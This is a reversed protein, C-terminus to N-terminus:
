DSLGRAKLYEDIKVAKVGVMTLPLKSGPHKEPPTFSWIKKGNLTAQIYRGGASKNTTSYVFSNKFKSVTGNTNSYFNHKPNDSYQWIIKRTIPDYEIIQSYDRSITVPPFHFMGLNIQFLTAFEPKLPALAKPILQNFFVLINGNPLVQVDHLDARYAIGELIFNALNEFWLLETLDHNLIALLHSQGFFNVIYNGKEFAKNKLANPNDPIEYISNAHSLEQNFKQGLFNNFVYGAKQKLGLKELEEIHNALCWEGVSNNNIDRKIACDSRIRQGNIEILESLLGIWHKHDPTFKIDHHIFEKSSWIVNDKSDLLAVNGSYPNAALVRGNPAYDCFVYNIKHEIMIGDKDYIKCLYSFYSFDSDPDQLIVYAAICMAAVVPILIFLSNKRFM